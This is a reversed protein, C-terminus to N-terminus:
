ARATIISDAIARGIPYKLMPDATNIEALIERARACDLDMQAVLAEASEFAKDPRIFDILEVDIQHGYLSENFDFLFVELKAIGNDFTPRRGNYAAGDFRYGDVWVRAAYIGHHLAQGAELMVNVTPYGIGTGRGAGREVSGSVTWWHGLVDAAERVKGARLLDRALSSSFVEGDGTEPEIVSVGFDLQRGMDELLQPGGGRGKGFFFNYGVIVHRAQWAAKIINEVFAEARMGALEADFSLVNAFEIGAAELLVLKRDMPTLTFMSTGPQFYARPHPDFTLVGTAAGCGQAIVQAKRLVALHGRHVGDFNGLALVAGTLEAPITQLDRLVRM